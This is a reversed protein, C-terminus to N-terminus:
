VLASRIQKAIQRALLPPVANGIQAAIRMRTGVWLFNDPFTQLRAAEWHTIARHETPHLYRGKEPKWFECRITCRAPLSWELRGFIDTGGTSKRLWCPPTLEPARRALDFRNGGTPILRYRRLSMETPSRSLHLDPGRAPGNPLKTKNPKLPIHQDGKYFGKAFASRVNVVPGKPEPLPIVAGRAGIIFARKRRQPVGYQSADLVAASEISVEFGAKIAREILAEGEESFLFNPVNEVVFVSCRSCEVVDMFLRWLARRPDTGRNGTLNSFGQCPPGGIVVDARANIKKRGVLSGIDETEVHQGFNSAYTAAFDPEKEVGLVPRFGADAFGKTFGGAGAFLDIFTLEQKAMGIFRTVKLVAHGRDGSSEADYEFSGM